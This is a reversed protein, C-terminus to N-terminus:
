SPALAHDIKALLVKAGLREATARAEIFYKRAEEERKAIKYLIGLNTDVSARYFGGDGYLRKRTELLLQVAKKWGTLKVGILFPLHKLLLSLPPKAKPALLEIYIQALMLRTLNGVSPSGTQDHYKIANELFRVGGSFDGQLVMALGVPGDTGVRSYMFENAAARQRHEALLKAGEAIQGLAILAVGKVQTGIERDFPTLAVRICESGHELADTFNEDTVDAWGLIWLGM